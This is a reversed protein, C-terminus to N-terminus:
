APGHDHLAQPPQPNPSQIAEASPSTLTQTFLGPGAPDSLLAAWVRVGTQGLLGALPELLYLIQGALFSLPRHGAVFCLLPLAMERQDVHRLLQHLRAESPDTNIMITM